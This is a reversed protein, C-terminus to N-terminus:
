QSRDRLVGFTCGILATAISSVWLWYGLAYGTITSYNGAGDTLLKRQLLFTLALGLSALACILAAVRRPRSHMLAWSAVLLPNALWTFVGGLVGVWGVLLLAVSPNWGDDPNDTHFAKQTLSVLFLLMSAWMWRGSVSRSTSDNHRNDASDL